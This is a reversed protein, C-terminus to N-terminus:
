FLFNIEMHNYFYDILYLTSEFPLPQNNLGTGDLLESAYFDGGWTGGILM